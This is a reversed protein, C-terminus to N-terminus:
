EAARVIEEAEGVVVIRQALWAIAQDISDSLTVFGELAKADDDAHTNSIYSLCLIYADCLRQTDTRVTEV